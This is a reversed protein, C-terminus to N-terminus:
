LLGRVKALMAKFRDFDAGGLQAGGLFKVQLPNVPKRNLWVEYHLHPGTSVGTSGVRGILQGQVVKQGAKVAFSSLHAYATVLDPKHQVRIYNGHGGHRGVFTVTGGAAAVIAAGHAAGFDIGQHMRSYNLVPHFRMGFGSTQRAGAVPTRMLGKKASEGNARFFQTKGAHSWKLMEVKDGKRPQLAAYILGGTETEGTEARRHELVIDFRDSSGVQREFDIAHSLAAIAEASIKAPVGAARASKSLSRGVTGSIRLPTDDVAIPVRVLALVGDRRVIELRLDFAARFALTELPRAVRKTECRGLVMDLATGPKLTRPDIEAGVLAAVTDAEGEGVGSRRLAAALGGAALSATVEIRPREPTESLPVAFRSAPAARGTPAGMALPGIAAPAADEAQAPTFPERVPLRLPSVNIAAFLAAGCLGTVTAVGFWWDVSGIRDGLDRHLERRAPLRLRPLSPAVFGFRPADLTAAGAGMGGTGYM